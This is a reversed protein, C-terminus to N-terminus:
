RAERLRRAATAIARGVELWASCQPCHRTDTTPYECIACFASSNAHQTNKRIAEVGAQGRANDNSRSM